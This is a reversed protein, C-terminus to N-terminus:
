PSRPEACAFIAAHGLKLRCPRVEIRCEVHEPRRGSVTTHELQDHAPGTWLHAFYEVDGFQSDVVAEDTVAPSSPAAPVGGVARRLGTTLQGHHVAAGDCQEGTGVLRPPGDGAVLEVDVDVQGVVVERGPGPQLE